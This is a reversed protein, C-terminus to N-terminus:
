QNELDSTLPWPWLPCIHFYGQSCSLSWVTSHIKMLSFVCIAWSSLIFSISKWPWLDFTLTVISLYPFLRTFMISVFSNLTNEDFKMCMNCMILPHVRKIKFTLPLPWLPCIHSYGQSCLLSWTTSHIKMLSWVCITWLSLIFGISKWPWLDLNCHVFISM